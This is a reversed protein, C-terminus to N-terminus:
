PSLWRAVDGISPQFESLCVGYAVRERVEVIEMEGKTDVADFSLIGLGQPDLVLNAVSLIEFRDGIAVGSSSGINIAVRGDPLTAAVQAVRVRTAPESPLLAVDEGPPAASESRIDSAIASLLSATLQEIVRRVATGAITRDFSEDGVTIEGIPPAAASRGPRVQFGVVAAYTAGDWLKARYLGSGVQSGLVDQQDWFWTGCQDAGIFRWGLWCLFQDSADYIEVSFWGEGGPNAYGIPVTEGVSYVADDSRLGGSCVDYGKALELFGNLGVSVGTAGQERGEASISSVAGGTRVDLLRASARVDVTASTFRVIGLTLAIEGVSVADVAGAVVLEVGLERAALVLNEERFPDLNREQLLAELEGREVVVVGVEALRDALGDAVGAGMNVFGADSRDAFEAVAVRLGGLADSSAAAWPIFVTISATNNTERSERVRNQPQDVAVTLIHPGGVATWPISVERQAHAEMGGVITANGVEVEDVAFFVFVSSSSRDDGVNEVVAVLAAVSGPLPVSPRIEFSAVVLDPKAEALVSVSVALAAVVLWARLTRKMM